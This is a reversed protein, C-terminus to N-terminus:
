FFRFFYFYLFSSFLNPFFLLLFFPDSSVSVPYAIPIGLLLILHRYPRGSNAAATLEQKLRAFIASYTEPYNVQHRTRKKKTLVFELVSREDVFVFAYRPARTSVWSPSGPAWGHLFTTLISPLM